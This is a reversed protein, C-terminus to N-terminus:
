MEKVKTFRISPELEQIRQFIWSEIERLWGEITFKYVYFGEHSPNRSRMFANLCPLNDYTYLIMDVQSGMPIEVKKRILKDLEEVWERKQMSNFFSKAYKFLTQWYKPQFESLKYIAMWRYQNIDDRIM